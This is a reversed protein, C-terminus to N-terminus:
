KNNEVKKGVVGENAVTMEYSLLSHEDIKEVGERDRKRQFLGTSHWDQVITLPLHFTSGTCSELWKGRWV